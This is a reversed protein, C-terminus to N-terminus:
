SPALTCHTMGNGSDGTIIYVNDHDLPNRGLFAVGDSPEMVEGSWRYEVEDALPFRQRVWAEIKDYRHQPHDDQGTKHDQGGVILLEHSVGPLAAALRIYYYPDGTDWLLLRPLADKPM